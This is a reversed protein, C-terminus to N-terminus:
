NDQITMLCYSPRFISYRAHNIYMIIYYQHHDGISQGNGWHTQTRIAFKSGM